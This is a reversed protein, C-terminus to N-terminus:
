SVVKRSEVVPGCCERVIKIRKGVPKKVLKLHVGRKANTDLLSSLLRLATPRYQANLAQLEWVDAPLVDEGCGRCTFVFATRPLM